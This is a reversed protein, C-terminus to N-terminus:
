EEFKVGARSRGSKRTGLYADRCLLCEGPEPMQFLITFKLGIMLNNVSSAFGETSMVDNMVLNDVMSTTNYVPYTDGNNYAAPAILASQNDKIHLDMLGYDVFAALRYEVKDKPVDYGAANAMVRLRAGIEFSVDLNMNLKTEVGGNIKLNDFFQYEPMNRFDDHGAYRGYTNLNATSYTQTWMNAMLKVGALMYFRNHQVGLMVPVQLAINRCQDKRNNLEYVYDFKEGDLDTQETLAMTHNTSQMFGTMGGLAGVGMNFLFRTQGYQPGVQLEYMGGIGGAVGLSHGVQAQSTLMTWEGINAYAGVYNYVKANAVTVFLLMALLIFYSQLKKVSYNTNRMKKYYRQLRNRFGVIKCEFM